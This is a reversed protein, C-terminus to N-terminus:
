CAPGHPRAHGPPIKTKERQHKGRGGHKGHGGHKGRSVDVRKPPSPHCAGHDGHKKVGKGKITKEASGSTQAEATGLNGGGSATPISGVPITVRSGPSPFVHPAPQSVTVTVPGAPVPTPAQVTIPVQVPPKTVPPVVPM